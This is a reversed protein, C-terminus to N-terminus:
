NTAASTLANLLAGARAAGDLKTDGIVIYTWNTTAGEVTPRVTAGGVHAAMAAGLKFADQNTELSTQRIVFVDFSRGVISSGARNQAPETLSYSGHVVSDTAGPLVLDSELATRVYGDVSAPLIEDPLAATSLGQSKAAPQAAQIAAPTTSVPAHHHRVAIVIIVISAVLTLFTIGVVGLCARFSQEAWQENEQTKASQFEESSEEKAKESALEQATQDDITDLIAFCQPCTASKLSQYLSGCRPCVKASM